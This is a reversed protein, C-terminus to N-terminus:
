KSNKQWKHPGILKPKKDSSTKKFPVLEFEPRGYPGFLIREGRKAAEFYEELHLQVERITLAKM